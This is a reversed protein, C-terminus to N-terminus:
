ITMGHSFLYIRREKKGVEEVGKEMEVYYLSGNCAVDGVSVGFEIKISDEDGDGCKSEKIGWISFTHKIDPLDKEGFYIMCPFEKEVVFAQGNILGSQLYKHFDLENDYVVLQITDQIVKMRDMAIREISTPGEYPPHVCDDKSKSLIHDIMGCEDHVYDRPDDPKSLGTFCSTCVLSLALFILLIKTYRYTNFYTM